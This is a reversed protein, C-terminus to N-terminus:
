KPIRYVVSNVNVGAGVSTFVIVSGKKFEQNEMKNNIVLDYLTPLTAVSSNGLWSITMPLMYEPTKKIGYEDLLRKIISDVMKKNAQHILIKDVDAIPVKAKELSEKVVQPVIKLAAEYLQRGKMKLFLHNEQYNPNNSKDMRLVFTQEGAYTHTHHALIGVPTESERAELIVAGAGDAYIMSDRDHPDAIRSLTEAGIILIRKAAGSRIYFDSQIMAQLWGACGFPLDYCVTLPNTIGLNNKVRSALAPVIDSRLNDAKIDGFNHAVIIYDFSEKDVGSSDIAQKAALFAIDSTVLDDTVYRREFIGTIDSFKQIIEESSKTLQIGDSDYFIHDRFDANMIKRTPIYSGSGVIVSYLAPIFPQNM